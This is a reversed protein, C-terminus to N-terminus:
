LVSKQAAEDLSMSASTVMALDSSNCVGALQKLWTMLDDKLNSQLYNLIIFIFILVIIAAHGPFTFFIGYCVDMIIDIISM